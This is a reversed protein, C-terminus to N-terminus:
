HGYLKVITLAVIAITGLGFMLWVSRMVLKLQRDRREAEERWSWNEEWRDNM